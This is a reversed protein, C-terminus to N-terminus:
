VPICKAHARAIGRLFALLFAVLATTYLYSLLLETYSWSPTEMLQLLFMYWWATLAAGGGVPFPIRKRSLLFGSLVVVLALTNSVWFPVFSVISPALPYTYEM